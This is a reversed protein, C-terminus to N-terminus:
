VTEVDDAEHQTDRPEIHGQTLLGISNPDFHRVSATKSPDDTNTAGAVKQGYKSPEQRFSADPPLYRAFAETLADRRYGRLDETHVPHVGLPKLLGALARATLPKDHRYTAWPRHELATLRELIHKTSVIADNTETIRESQLDTLLETRPDTDEVAGNLAVAARRARGPWDGGALDAIALLPEWVDQARDSLEPPLTPRAARLTEIATPAWSALSTRIPAAEERGDRDRWRAVPESNMKRVLVIPIARDAVTDPLSGIGAIVKPCFTSFDRVTLDAGKGICLSAKGSRKYGTNLIGRLAEAYDKEGRFAADSEDLELTPKDADVKRVLAAASTRGTLWPRAVIQELVELLRTKGARKTASTVSMYPTTDAAAIAHTHAAHLTLAVSQADTLVVYRRIFMYVALLIALLGPADHANLPKVSPRAAEVAQALTATIIAELDATTHADLYDSVDGKPPLRDLPVICAILGAARCSQAVDRAHREGAEDNDAFVGVVRTGGAYLVRAYDDKWKGAGGVNTTAAYNLASLRDADKEGETVLVIRQGLIERLRYPVRTVGQLNWSWGGAGDPRRQRFTKPQYRVSQYLLNGHEDTYDYTAAITRGTKPKEVRSPETMLDAFTLGVASLVADTACGAHCHMVVAHSAGMGVSLSARGDDHAPCRTERQRGDARVAAITSPLSISM